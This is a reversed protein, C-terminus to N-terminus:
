PSLGPSSSRNADVNSVKARRIRGQLGAAKVAEKAVNSFIKAFAEPVWISFPFADNYELNFGQLLPQRACWTSAAPCQGNSESCHFGHLRFEVLEATHPAGLAAVAVPKVARFMLVAVDRSFTIKYRPTLLQKENKSIVPLAGSDTELKDGIKVDVAQKVDAGYRGGRCSLRHDFTVDFSSGDPLSLSVVHVDDEDIWEMKQVVAEAENPDSSCLREGLRLDKVNVLSLSLPNQDLHQFPRDVM